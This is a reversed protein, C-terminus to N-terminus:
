VIDDDPLEALAARVRDLLGPPPAAPPLRRTLRITLQYTEIYCVCDNCLALHERIHAAQEAPLEDAVFDILLEALEHCTM